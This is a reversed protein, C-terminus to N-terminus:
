RAAAIAPLILDIRALFQARDDHDRLQGAIRRIFPYKQLTRARVPAGGRDRSVRSYM